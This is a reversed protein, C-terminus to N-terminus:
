SGVTPGAFHRTQDLWVNAGLAKLDAALKLAFTSDERGYSLFAPPKGNVPNRM